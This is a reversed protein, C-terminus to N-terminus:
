NVSLVNLYSVGITFFTLPCFTSLSSLYVSFLHQITSFMSLAFQQITFLSSLVYSRLYYFTLSSLIDFLLFRRSSIIVFRVSASHSM